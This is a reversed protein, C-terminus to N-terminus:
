PHANRWSCERCRRSRPDAPFTHGVSRATRRQRSGPPATRRANRQFGCPRSSRCSRVARRFTLRHGKCGPQLPASRRGAPTSSRLLTAHTQRPLLPKMSSHDPGMSVERGRQAVGGSKWTCACVFTGSLIRQSCPSGNPAQRGPMVNKLHKQTISAQM